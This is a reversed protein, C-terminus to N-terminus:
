WRVIRAHVVVGAGIAILECVGERGLFYILISTRIWDWRVFICQLLSADTTVSDADVGIARVPASSPCVDTLGM